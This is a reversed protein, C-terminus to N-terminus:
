GLYVCIYHLSIGILHECISVICADFELVSVQRVNPPQEHLSLM